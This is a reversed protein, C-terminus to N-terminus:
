VKFCDIVTLHKGDVKFHIDYGAFLMKHVYDAEKHSPVRPDEALVGVAADRKDEPLVNLLNEPFDVTLKYDKVSETFGLTAEPHSDAAVHYPKIDLIPSGDLLDLGSVYLVPGLKEDFEIKELRVCSLGIPNPRHPSRTAFVGKHVNGGLRPPKVTASWSGDHVSKSFEWILWIHSFVELGKVSDPHRFEPEFVIRGKLEPVLGSQRPLGFKESFDTHAKAITKFEFGM